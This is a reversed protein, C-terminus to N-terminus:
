IEPMNVYSQSIAVDAPDLIFAVTRATVMKAPEDPVILVESSRLYKITLDPRLILGFMDIAGAAAAGELHSQIVAALVAAPLRGTFGFRNVTEALDNKIAEIDPVFSEDKLQLEFSLQLFCPIPAKVLVDAAAHRTRRGVVFDHIDRLLPMMRVTVAYDATAGLALEQTNVDTDKFVFVSTQLPSFAAEVATQVDPAFDEDSLDYGRTETVIEYGSDTQDNDVPLIKVVDYFGPADTKALAFQWLGRNDSTKEVLIATGEILKYTPRDQSRVYWDIGGGLAGPWITHNRLQEADGFGIISTGVIDAFLPQDTLLADMSVRNSLGRSAIGRNLRAVMEANTETAVGGVFDAAAYSKVFAAPPASPVLVTDKSLRGAVGPVVAVVDIDFGWLNEDLQTLVRDSEAAATASTPQSTFVQETVFEQGNATFVAGLRITVNIARSLLITVTGRSLQGPRREVRYLSLVSDVLDDPALEPDAAIEALSRARNYREVETTGITGLAAGYKALVARLVGRKADITPNEEQIMEALVDARAMVTTPDLESLQM